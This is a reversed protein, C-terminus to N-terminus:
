CIFDLRAEHHWVAASQYYSFMEFGVMTHVHLTQVTMHDLGYM